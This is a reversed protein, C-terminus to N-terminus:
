RAPSPQKSQGSLIIGVRGAASSVVVDINSTPDVLTLVDAYHRAVRLVRGVLGNPSIVGMGVHVGQKAVRIWGFGSITPPSM